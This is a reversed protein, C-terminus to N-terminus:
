QYSFEEINDKRRRKKFKEVAKRIATQPLTVNKASVEIHKSV